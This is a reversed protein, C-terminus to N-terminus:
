ASYPMRSAFQHSSNLRTYKRDRQARDANNHLVKLVDAIEVGAEEQRWCDYDTVMAVLAYPLEAERALKAEPMATMGIIDCGWNRYLQSEARTSFQPGEMALYTGGEMVDAGSTRACYAALSSLRPCYSDAM